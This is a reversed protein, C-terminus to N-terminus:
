DYFHFSWTMQIVLILNLPQLLIPIYKRFIIYYSRIFWAESSIRTFFHNCMGGDFNEVMRSWLITYGIKCLAKISSCFGHPIPHVLSFLKQNKKKNSAWKLFHYFSQQTVLHCSFKGKKHWMNSFCLLGLLKQLILNKPMIVKVKQTRLGCIGERGWM